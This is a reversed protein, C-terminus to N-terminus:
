APANSASSSAPYLGAQTAPIDIPAILAAIM